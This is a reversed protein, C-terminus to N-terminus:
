SASDSRLIDNAGTSLSIAELPISLAYRLTFTEDRWTGFLKDDSDFLALRGSYMALGSCNQGSTLVQGASVQSAHRSTGRLAQFHHVAGARKARAVRADLCGPANM